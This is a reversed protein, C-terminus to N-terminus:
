ADKYYMRGQLKMSVGGAPDSTWAILYYRDKFTYGKTADDSYTLKKNVPINLHFGMTTGFSSDFTYNKHKVVKINKLNAINDMNQFGLNDNLTHLNRLDSIKTLDSRDAAEAEKIVMIEVRHDFTEGSDMYIEGNVRIKSCSVVDGVRQNNDVGQIFNNATSGNFLQSGTAPFQNLPFIKAGATGDTSSIQGLLVSDYANAVASFMDQYKTEETKAVTKKVYNKVAKSVKSMKGWKVKKKQAIFTNARQSGKVQFLQGGAM